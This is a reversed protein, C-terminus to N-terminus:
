CCGERFVKKPLAVRVTVAPDVIQGIRVDGVLSVLVYAEEASLNKESQLWDVMDQLALKIANELGEASAVCMLEDGTEIRPRPIMSNSILDLKITVEAGCEIGTGCVEGDGMCAHVDGVGFLAGDVLV